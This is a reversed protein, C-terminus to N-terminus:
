IFQNKLTYGIKLCVWNIGRHEVTGLLVHPDVLLLYSNCGVTNKHICAILLPPIFGVSTYRYIYLWIYDFICMYVYIHLDDYPTFFPYYDMALPVVISHACYIIKLMISMICVIKGDTVWYIQIIDSIIPLKLGLRRAHAWCEVQPDQASSVHYASVTIVNAIRLLTPNWIQKKKRKLLRQKLHQNQPKYHQYSLFLPFIDPLPRSKIVM